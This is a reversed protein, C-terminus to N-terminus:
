LKLPYVSRTLRFRDGAGQLASLFEVFLAKRELPFLGHKEPVVLFTILRHLFVGFVVGTVTVCALPLHTGRECPFAAPTGKITEPSRPPDILVGRWGAGQQVQIM